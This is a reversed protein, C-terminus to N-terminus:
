NELPFGARDVVLVEANVKASALRVGLQEELATFLSPRDANILDGQADDPSWQLHYDFVRTDGTMDVVPRGLLASLRITM